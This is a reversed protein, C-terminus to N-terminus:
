TNWVQKGISRLKRNITSFISITLKCTTWTKKKQSVILNKPNEDQFIHYMRVYRESIYFLDRRNRNGDEEAMERLICLNM